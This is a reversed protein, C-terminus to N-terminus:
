SDHLIGRLFDTTANLINTVWVNRLHNHCLLSYVIGYVEACLKRNTLKASNCTDTMVSGNELKSINIDNASPLLDLLDPFEEETIKRWRELFVQLHKLQFDSLYSVAIANSSSCDFHLEFHFTVKEKVAEVQKESTENELFICSSAIVQEFKDGNHLGIVLNQFAIQRRTTGNTFLEIWRPANGLRYAALLENLNQVVVRCQQVYRVSVKDHVEAGYYAANSAIIDPVSSPPAGAVLLECILLVIRLPWKAGGGRRGVQRERKIELRINSLKELAARQQSEDALSDRLEGVRIKLDQVQELRRQAM